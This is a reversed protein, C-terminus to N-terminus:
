FGKKTALDRQIPVLVVCLPSRSFGLELADLFDLTRPENSNGVGKIGGGELLASLLVHLVRSHTATEVKDPKAKAWLCQQFSRTVILSM